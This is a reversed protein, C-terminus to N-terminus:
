PLTKQYKTNFREPNAFQYAWVDLEPVTIGKASLFTTVDTRHAVGHYVISMFVLRAQYDFSWGPGEEHINRTAPVKDLAGLLQASLDAELAALQTLSPNEDWGTPMDPAVGHLRKLFGAEARVVHVFTKLISGYAGPIEAHVLDESLSLCVSMLAQNAWRNYRIFENTTLESEDTM